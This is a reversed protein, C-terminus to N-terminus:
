KSNDYLRMVEDVKQIKMIEKIIEKKVNESVLNFARKLNEMEKLKQFNIKEGEPLSNVHNKIQILQGKLEQDSPTKVVFSFAVRNLESRFRQEMNELTPKFVGIKILDSFALDIGGTILDPDTIARKFFNRALEKKEEETPEPIRNLPGPNSTLMPHSLDAPFDKRLIKYWQFVNRASITTLENKSELKGFSGWQIAKILDELWALHHDQIVFDIISKSKAILDSEEFNLGMTIHAQKLAVFVKEITQAESDHLAKRLRGEQMTHPLLDVPHKENLYKTVM